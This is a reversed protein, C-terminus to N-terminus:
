RYIRLERARRHQNSDEDCETAEILAIYDKPLRNERAGRLVHEKYWDFPKLAPDVLTACYTFAEIRSGDELRVAVGKERYGQGLGEIGDLRPKENDPIRYVVGYVVHDLIGTESADCKASGDRFGVKHFRLRHKELAGVGLPKASPVRARLRRISMNSGYAFYHM